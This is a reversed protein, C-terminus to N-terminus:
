KSLRKKMLERWTENYSNLESRLPIENPLEVNNNSRVIIQHEAENNVPYPYITSWYLVELKPDTHYKLIDLDNLHPGSKPTDTHFACLKSIRLAENCISAAISNPVSCLVGSTYVLDFSDDLFQKTDDSNILTLRSTTSEPISELMKQAPDIGVIEPLDLKNDDYYMVLANLRRGTGCGIELIRSPKLSVVQSAWGRQYSGLPNLIDPLSDRNYIEAVQNYFDIADFDNEL